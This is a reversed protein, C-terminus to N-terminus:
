NKIFSQRILSMVYELNNEEKVLIEYDGNGFHGLKSVDRALKRPDDLDGKKLNLVLKLSAKQIVIDVFNTNHSFAIYNQNPKISVSDLSVIEDKLKHYLNKIETNINELLYDETYTRIEKAVSRVLENKSSLKAISEGKESRIQNFVLVNNTYKKVEWLDIPLDKFGAAQKQYTTFIPSVFIIRSQSWDVDEKKLIQNSNENYALIFEAKNNLMLSLYAYGQDIISFNKDKKYEIIVFAKSTKDFGLTDIRLGNLELETKVFGLGFVTDLNQEVLKQLDKELKFPIESMKTLMDGTQSFIVM